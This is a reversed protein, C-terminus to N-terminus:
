SGHVSCGPQFTPDLNYETIGFPKFEKDALVRYLFESTSMEHRSWEGADGRALICYEGPRQAALLRCYQDAWESSAWTVFGHGGPTYAPYPEGDRSISLSARWRVLLHFMPGEMNGLFSASECFTGGGFAGCLEKHDAPLPVRLEREVADRDVSRM